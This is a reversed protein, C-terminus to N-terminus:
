EQRLALSKNKADWVWFEDVWGKTAANVGDYTQRSIWIGPRTGSGKLFKGFTANADILQKPAGHEPLLWIATRSNYSHEENSQVALIDDDGGFLRGTEVQELTMLVTDTARLNGDPGLFRLRLDSGFGNAHDLFASIVIRWGRSSPLSRIPAENRPVLHQAAPVYKGLELTRM